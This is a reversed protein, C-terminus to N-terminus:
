ITPKRTAFLFFSQRGAKLKKEVRVPAEAIATLAPINSYIVAINSNTPIVIGHIYERQKEKKLCVHM